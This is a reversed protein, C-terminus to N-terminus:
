ACMRLQLNWFKTTSLIKGEDIWRRATHCSDHRVRLPLLDSPCLIGLRQDFGKDRGSSADIIANVSLVAERVNIMLDGRPSFLSCHFKIEHNSHEFLFVQVVFSGREEWWSKAQTTNVRIKQM